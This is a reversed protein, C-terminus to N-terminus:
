DAPNGPRSWRFWSDHVVQALEACKGYGRDNHADITVEQSDAPALENKITVDFAREWTADKPGDLFTDAVTLAGIGFEASVPDRPDFINFWRDVGKPPFQKPPLEDLEPPVIPTWHQPPQATSPRVWHIVDGIFAEVRGLAQQVDYEIQGAETLVQQAWIPFMRQADFAWGLPGGMTVLTDILIPGRGQTIRQANIDDLGTILVEYAILTGFSHAVVDLGDELPLQTLLDVFPKRVKHAYGLGFYKILDRLFDDGAQKAQQDAVPLRVSGLVRRDDRQPGMRGTARAALLPVALLDVAVKEHDPLGQPNDPTPQVPYFIDSWYALHFRDRPVTPAQEPPLRQLGEQLATYWKDEEDQFSVKKGRGHIYILTPM